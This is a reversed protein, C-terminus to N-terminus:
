MEKDFFIVVRNFNRVQPIVLRFNERKKIQKLLYQANEFARDVHEEMGQDGMAKWMLWLKFGDSQLLSYM